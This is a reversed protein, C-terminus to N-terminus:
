DMAELAQALAEFEEGCDQCRELHARVAKMLDDGDEGRQVAEAYEDLLEFCEDCDLEQPQTRKLQAALKALLQGANEPTMDM